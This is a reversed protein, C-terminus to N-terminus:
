FSTSVGRLTLGAAQDAYGQDLEHLAYRRTIVDALDHRGRM